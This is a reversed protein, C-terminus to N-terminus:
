TERCHEIIYNPNLYKKRQFEDKSFIVGFLSDIAVIVSIVFVLIIILVIFKTFREM